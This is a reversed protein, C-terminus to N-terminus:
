CGAIYESETHPNVCDTVESAAKATIAVLVVVGVALGLIAEGGFNNKYDVDETLNVIPTTFSSINGQGIRYNQSPKLYNITRNGDADLTFVIGEKFGNTQEVLMVNFESSGTFLSQRKAGLPMKVQLGLYKDDAEGLVDASAVTVLLLSAASVLGILFTKM